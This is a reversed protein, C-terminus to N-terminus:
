ETVETASITGSDDVTLRFKKTSGETSSRIIVGDVSEPLYEEPMKNPYEEGYTYIKYNHTEMDKVILPGNGVVNLGLLFSEGTDEYADEDILSLNGYAYDFILGQGADIDVVRRKCITKVGDFYIVIESEYNLGSFNINSYFVGNSEINATLNYDGRLKLDRLHVPLWDLDLFKSELKKVSEDGTIKFTWTEADDLGMCMAGVNNMMESIVLIVFPDETLLTPDKNVMAVNGLGVCEIGDFEVAKGTCVYDVGNYNVVYSNEALISSLDAQIAGTEPDVTTEPLIVGGKKAYFPKDLLDNWSIVSKPIFKEDIKKVFEGDSTIKFTQIEAGDFGVAIGEIPANAIGEMPESFAMVVFPEDTMLSEDDFLAGVNGLCIYYFDDTEDLRKATCTYDTGNYNVIYSNGEIITSLDSYIAGEFEIDPITEPLIVANDGAYFPKDTLDNWSSVGGDVEMDDPLFEKPLKNYEEVRVSRVKLTITEVNSTAKFVFCGTGGLNNIFFPHETKIKSNALTGNGLALSDDEIAYCQAEYETGNWTVIYTYGEVFSNKAFGNVIASNTTFKISTEDFVNIDESVVNMKATWIVDDLMSMTQEFEQRWQALIDAYTYAVSNSNRRGKVVYLLKNEETAWSYTCNGGPKVCELLLSFPVSEVIEKTVNSSILWSFTVKTRDDENITLDDIDYVGDELYHIQRVNCLTIDHGEIYRDCDFTIRESNHSFQVLKRKDTAVILKNKVDVTFHADFDIINSKDNHQAARIMALQMDTLGAYEQSNSM